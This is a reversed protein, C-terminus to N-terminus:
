FFSMLRNIINQDTTRDFVRALAANVLRSYFLQRDEPPMKEYSLSMAVIEFKDGDRSFVQRSYGALITLQKRVFEVQYDDKAAEIDGYYHITCFAFFAFIKGHLRGNQKLKIDIVHEGNEVKALKAVAMDDAPTIAGGPHKIVSVIM